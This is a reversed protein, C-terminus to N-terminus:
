IRRNCFNNISDRQMNLEIMLNEIEENMGKQKKHNKRYTIIFKM